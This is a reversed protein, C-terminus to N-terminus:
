LAWITSLDSIFPRNTVLNARNSATIAAAALQPALQAPTSLMSNLTWKRAVSFAMKPRPAGLATAERTACDGM